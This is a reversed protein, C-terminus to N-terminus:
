LWAACGANGCTAEAQEPGSRRKRKNPVQGDSGSTRSRRREACRSAARGFPRSRSGPGSGRERERPALSRGEPLSRAGRVLTLFFPSDRSEHEERRAYDGSTVSPPPARRPLPARLSRRPPRDLGKPRTARRRCLRTARTARLSARPRRPFDPVMGPGSPSLRRM